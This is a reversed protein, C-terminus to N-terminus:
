VRERCSARGIERLGWNWDDAGKEIFFDVLDKYGGRAAYYMGKNFGIAGKGIFYLVLDKNGERAANYMGENLNKSEKSMIDKVLIQISQIFLCISSIM